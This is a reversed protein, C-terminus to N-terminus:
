RGRPPPAPRPDGPMAPVAALLGATYPDRPASLVEDVTGSEVVRGACMVAVRDCSQAIVGLDHSVMIAAMGSEAQIDALLRLIQDQITVDLATTPEDALLLAPECAIAMAIMVRQRMGGSLHHPYDRLRREPAPIGVRTLLEVARRRADGRTLGARRTLVEGLQDGVTYVPNLSDQPDQFIMAIQRGRVERWGRRGLTLLDSAGRWTASGGLVVGPAPVIGLLARLSLSKGSGSEGVIGLTEGAMVEFGVGRVALEHDSGTPFGITLGSVALLASM